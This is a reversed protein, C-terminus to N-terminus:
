YTRGKLESWSPLNGNKSDQWYYISWVARSDRIMNFRLDGGYNEPLSPDNSPVNLTYSATYVLSDGQPSYSENSLTLTIPISQPVKSIMNNFYQEENKIGWNESLAPFQSLAGSSPSFTFVRQTFSYDALCSIYNEVNKDKLSNVLNSILVDPTVPQQYDARPQSPPEASRTSFLDCGNLL